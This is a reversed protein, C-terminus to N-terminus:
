ISKTQLLPPVHRGLHSVFSQLSPEVQFPPISMSKSHYLKQEKKFHLSCKYVIEFCESTLLMHTLVFRNPALLCFLFQLPPKIWSHFFNCTVSRSSRPLSLIETWLLYSSKLGCGNLYKMVKSSSWIQSGHVCKDVLDYYSLKPFSISAIPQLKMFDTQKHHMVPNFHESIKQSAPMALLPLDAAVCAPPPSFIPLSM